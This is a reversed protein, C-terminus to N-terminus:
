NHGQGECRGGLSEATWLLLDVAEGFLWGLWTSM